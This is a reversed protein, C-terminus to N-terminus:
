HENLKDSDNSFENSNTINTCTDGTDNINEYIASNNRGLVFEKYDECDNVIISSNCSSSIDMDENGVSKNYDIATNYLDSNSFVTNSSNVNKFYIDEQNKNMPTSLCNNSNGFSMGELADWDDEITHNHINDEQGSINSSLDSDSRYEDSSYNSNSTLLLWQGQDNEKTSYLIDAIDRNLM